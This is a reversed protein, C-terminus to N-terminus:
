CEWQSHTCFILFLNFSLLYPKLTGVVESHRLWNSRVHIVFSWEDGDGGLNKPCYASLLWPTFFYGCSFGYVSVSEKRTFSHAVVGPSGTYDAHDMM